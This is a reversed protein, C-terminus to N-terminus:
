NEFHVRGFFLKATKRASNFNLTFLCKLIYFCIHLKTVTKKHAVRRAKEWNINKALTEVLSALKLEEKFRSQDNTMQSTTSKKHRRYQLGKYKLGVLSEGQLLARCTLEWDLVFRFSENFRNTNFFSSRFCLTPAIIFNGRILTSLGEDGRLTFRDGIYKPLLFLKVLDVFFFINKGTPGIIKARCFFINSDSHEKSVLLMTEIYKPELLDDEHLLTLLPTKSLEICRNWNGGIGLSRKNISLEIRSDNLEKVWETLGNPSPNDCSIVLQWDPYSQKQVSNVALKLYEFSSYYPIAITIQKM